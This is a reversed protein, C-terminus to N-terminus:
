RQERDMQRIGERIMAVLQRETVVHGQVVVDGTWTMGGGGGAPPQVGNPYVHAPTKFRVIEPGLEGVLVDRGAPTDGGGARATDYISKGPYTLRVTTGVEIPIKKLQDIYGQLRKLLPSGPALTKAEAELKRITADVEAKADRQESATAHTAQALKRAADAAAFYAAEQDIVAARYDHLAQRSAVSNTGTAKVTDRYVKLAASVKDQSVTLENNARRAGLSANEVDNLIGLEKDTSQILKETEDRQHKISAALENTVHVNAQMQDFEKGYKATLEDVKNSMGSQSSIIDGDTILGERRAQNIHDQVYTGRNLSDFLQKQMPLIDHGISAVWEDWGAKVEQQAIAYERAQTIDADTLVLKTSAALERLRASGQEVIDIMEAGSRGFATTLIRTKDTANSAADYADAVNFLTEVLNVNGTADRNVEIGLKAFQEPTAGIAKSLKFMSGSLSESSVGLVDSVHVLRSAEEASSNTVDQFNDIRGVLTQYTHSAYIAGGAIAALAGVAVGGAIGMASGVATATGSVETLTNGAMRGVPGLHTLAGGLSTIRKELATTAKTGGEMGTKLVNGTSHAEGRLKALDRRDVRVRMILDPLAREAM